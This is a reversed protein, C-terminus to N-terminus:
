DDVADGFETPGAPDLPLEDSAIEDADRDAALVDPDDAAPDEPTLDTM